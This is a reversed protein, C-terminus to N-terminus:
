RATPVSRLQACRMGFRRGRGQRGLRRRRLRLNPFQSAPAHGQAAGVSLHHRTAYVQRDSTRGKRRDKAHLKGPPHYAFSRAPATPTEGDQNDGGDIPKTPDDGAQLDFPLPRLSRKDFKCTNAVKQILTAGLARCAATPTQTGHRSNHEAHHLASPPGLGPGATAGSALAATIGAAVVTIAPSTRFFYRM